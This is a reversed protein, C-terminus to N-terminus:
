EGREREALARARRVLDRAMAWEYSTDSADVHHNVCYVDPCSAGAMDEELREWTDVVPRKVREGRELQQSGGDGYIVPRGHIWLQVAEVMDAHGDILAMDGFRVPANNEFRPWADVLWEMGDPMARANLLLRLNEVVATLNEVHRGMARLPDDGPEVGNAECLDRLERRLDYLAADSALQASVAESLKRELEEIRRRRRGLAAECEAIHRLLSQRRREYRDYPVRSRWESKVHDLGGHDRVWKIAEVDELTMNSWGFTVDREGDAERWSPNQTDASESADSKLAGRLERAWRAVPSDEAGEVGSVHREMDDVVGGVILRVNEITDSECAREREIQDAIDHLREYLDFCFSIGGLERVIDYLSEIGKM